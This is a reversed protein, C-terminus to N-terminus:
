SHLKLTKMHKLFQLHRTAKLVEFWVHSKEETRVESSLQVVLWPSRVDMKVTNKNYKEM